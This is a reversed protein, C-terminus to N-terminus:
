GSGQAPQLCASAIRECLESAALADELGPTPPVGEACSGVFRELQLAFCREAKDGTPPLMESRGDLELDLSFTPPDLSARGRPGTVVFQSPPLSPYLWIVELRVITGDAYTLAAGNM